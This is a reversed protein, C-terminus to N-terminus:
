RTKVSCNASSTKSRLPSKENRCLVQIGQYSYTKGTKLGRRYLTSRSPRRSPKLKLIQAGTASGTPWQFPSSKLQKIEAVAAIILSYNLRSRGKDQLWKCAALGCVERATLFKRRSPVKVIRRWKTWTEYDPIKWRGNRFSQLGSRTLGAHYIRQDNDLSLWIGFALSSRIVYDEQYTPPEPKKPM